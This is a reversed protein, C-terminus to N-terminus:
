NSFEETFIHEKPIGLGILMKIIAAMFAPSGCLFHLSNQNLKGIVSQVKDKTIMKKPVDHHQADQTVYSHLHEGLVEKLEHLYILQEKTKVSYFLTTKAPNSNLIQDVFPTIGIGGAYYFRPMDNTEQTFVGYAGDLLVKDGKSLSQILKSNPGIAKIGFTLEHTVPDFHLVSYPHAIGFRKAQLYMYQGPKPTIFSSSPSLQITFTESDYNTVNQVIYKKKFVGMWFLLRSIIIVVFGVKALIYLAGLLSNEKTFSGNDEVHQLAFFLMPYTLYHLYLWPRYKLKKRLLASSVWVIMYLLLSFRGLTIHLESETILNPTIIWSFNELYNYMELLPHVLIFVVGYKGLKKHLDLASQLDSTILKVIFRVGLLLSLYLLSIGLMGTVSAFTHIVSQPNTTTYLEVIPLLAPACFLLLVLNFLTKSQLM